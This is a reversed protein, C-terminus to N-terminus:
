GTAISHAWSDVARELAPGANSGDPSVEVVHDFGSRDASPAVSGAFIATPKGLRRALAALAGPGKGYDTQADLRGEGTLVLDSARVREELRLVGAILAFGETIRGGCLAALGYALGGAAGMGPASAIDIHLQERVRQELRALAAELRQVTSPEAGKQPGYVATAGEPGLLPNRVDTALILEIASLRPDRQSVDIRHLRELAAGGPPLPEGREDLFRVGLAAAAGSGGDNTASGGLGVIVKTCGADLACRLLQGTGFTSARLPDREPPALLTLGSATAMEIIALRRDPLYAWRAEVPRGLPNQVLASRREAGLATALAEVTGPGGDALPAVDLEVHPLARRLARAMAEAAEVATLTGKFEQPAVLVRKM